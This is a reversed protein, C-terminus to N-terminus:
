SHRVSARPLQERLRRAWFKAQAEGVLARLDADLLADPPQAIRWALMRSSTRELKAVVDAITAVREIQGDQDELKAFAAHHRIMDALSANLPLVERHVFPPRALAAGHAVRVTTYVDDATASHLTIWTNGDGSIKLAACTRGTADVFWRSVSEDVVDGLVAFGAAILAREDGRAAELTAVLAADAEGAVRYTTPHNANAIAERLANEGKTIASRRKWHASVYRFRQWIWVYIVGAGVAFGILVGGSM